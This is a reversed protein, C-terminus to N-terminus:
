RFIGAPSECSHFRIETRENARRENWQFRTRNVSQYRGTRDTKSYELKHFTYSDGPLHFGCNPDCLRLKKANNKRIDRTINPMSGIFKGESNVLYLTEPYKLLRAFTVPEGSDQTCSLLTEMPSAAYAFTSMLILCATSMLKRISM